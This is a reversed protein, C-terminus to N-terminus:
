TPISWFTFLSRCCNISRGRAVVFLSELNSFQYPVHHHRIKELAFRNSCPDIGLRSRCYAQMAILEPKIWIDKREKRLKSVIMIISHHHYHSLNETTCVPHCKHLLGFFCNSVLLAGNRLWQFDEHGCWGCLFIIQLLNNMDHFWYDIDVCAHNCTRWREGFLIFATAAQILESFIVQFLATRAVHSILTWSVTLYFMPSISVCVLALFERLRTTHHFIISLNSCGGPPSNTPPLSLTAWFLDSSM